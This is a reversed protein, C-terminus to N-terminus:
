LTDERGMEQMCDPRHDPLREGHAFGHANCWFPNHMEPKDPSLSFLAPPAGKKERERKSEPSMSTVKERRPMDGKRGEPTAKEALVAPGQDAQTLHVRYFNLSHECL